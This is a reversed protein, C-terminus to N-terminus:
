DKLLDHVTVNILLPARATNMMCMENASRFDGDSVFV